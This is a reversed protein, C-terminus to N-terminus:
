SAGVKSMNRWKDKLDVNTRQVDFVCNKLIERWNGIGYRKVAQQLTQEDKKTWPIRHKVPHPNISRPKTPPNFSTANKRTIELAKPLKSPPTTVSPSEDSSWDIIEGTSTTKNSVQRLRSGRSSSQVCPQVTSCQTSTVVHAHGTRHEDSSDHVVEDVVEVDQAALSHSNGAPKRSLRTSRRTPKVQKAPSASGRTASNTDRLDYVKPDTQKGHSARESDAQVEDNSDDESIPQNKKRLTIQMKAGGFKKELADAVSIDGEQKLAKILEKYSPTASTRLWRSFMERKQAKTNQHFDDRIVELDGESLGLKLGLGFWDSIELNQLDKLEPLDESTPQNKKRLTMQMKAGGKDSSYEYPDSMSDDLPADEPVYEVDVNGDDDDGDGISDSFDLKRGVDSAADLRMMRDSENAKAVSEVEHRQRETAEIQQHLTGNLGESRGTIESDVCRHMHFIAGAEQNLEVGVHQDPEAEMQDSAEVQLEQEEEADLEADAAEIQQNSFGGQRDEGEMVAEAHKHLQQDVLPRSGHVSEIDCVIDNFAMDSDLSQEEQLGPAGSPPEYREQLVMDPAIPQSDVIVEQTMTLSPMYANVVGASSCETEGFHERFFKESAFYQKILETADEVSGDEACKVAAQIKAEKYLSQFEDTHPSAYNCFCQLIDMVKPLDPATEAMVLSVLKVFKLGHVTATTLIEKDVVRM